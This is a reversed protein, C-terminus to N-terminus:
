KIAIQVADSEVIKNYFEKFAPFKESAITAKEIPASFKRTTVLKGNDTKFSLSYTIGEFSFEQNQPIDVVKKGTPLTITITESSGELAAIYYELTFERKDNGQFEESTAQDTWPIPMITLGAVNTLGNKVTFNYEYAMSDTLGKLDTTYTLKQLKIPTKFDKSISQQMSKEREEQTVDADNERVGAAYAGYKVNNRTISLDTGKVEITTKRKIFNNVRGKFDLAVLNSSASKVNNAPINLMMAGIDNKNLSGFSLKNNTMELLYEKNDAELHAICHNFDISPLPMDLKGNDRTNVLVVNAKLGMEKAMAVFLTSMDKCDGLRTTLTKEAKQPVHGSQRFSVSSYKINTLIYDYIIRAKETDTKPSKGEFAEAIADKVPQEAKAKTSSIGSYWDAVYDWDPISSVAVFPVVDSYPPMLPEAKIPKIDKREWTYLKNGDVEKITPELKMNLSKYAFKKDKPVLLQYRVHNTQYPTAFFTKEWFHKAFKGGQYSQTKYQIYIADGVQLNTFVAHGGSVEAQLKKGDKKIVESKEVSAGSPISYEKWDEIGAETLIKVAIVVKEERGGESYVVQQCDDILVVSNQEPYDSAKPAKKILAYVDDKQFADFIDGKKDIKRLEERVDYNNANYLIAKEFAAKAKDKQKLESYCRGLEGWSRSTYPALEILKETLTAAKAYDRTQFYYQALNRQYTWATPNIEVLRTRMELAKETNGQSTYCDMLTNYAKDTFNTKLFTELIKMGTRPDKNTERELSYKMMVVDPREPSKKYMDEIKKLLDDRKQDHVLLTLQHADTTTNNGYRKIVDASLKEAEDYHEKEVADQFNYVLVFYSNPDQERMAELEKSLDTRNGVRNYYRIMLFSVFSSTPAIKKAEKLVKLLEYNKYNHYLCQAYLIKTLLDNPKAAYEKAWFEEPENPLLATAVTSAANKPYEKFSASYTFGTLNKGAKDTLRVLLSSSSQEDTGIQVLIRNYGKKLNITYSAADPNTNREESDTGVLGDNVWLKYTGTWGMRLIVTQDSPSNVFSQNYFVSNGDGVVDSAEMWNDWDVAPITVWGVKIDDKNTFIADNQPNDIPAYKKDFGSGSVNEFEGAVQWTPIVGNLAFAKTSETFNASRRLHFGNTQNCLTTIYSPTKTDAQIAKLLSLHDPGLKTGESLGVSETTWLAYITPYPNESAKHFGLMAKTAEVPRDEMSYLLSLGLNAEAATTKDKQGAKFLKLAQDRNNGFFAKWAEPLTNQAYLNTTNAAFLMAFGMFYLTLQRM